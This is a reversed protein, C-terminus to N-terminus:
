EMTGIVNLTGNSYSFVHWTNGQQSPVTYTVAQANGPLYVKVTAGSTNMTGESRFDVVYYEFSAGADTITITEPGYASTDDVDLSGVNSVNQNSYSIHFSSGSSSTGQAHSDLDTPYSGWSLVIRIEGEAVEPSLVINQGVKTQGKIIEVDAYETVYGSCSVELTYKGAEGSFTYSGNNASTLEEIVTGTQSGRNRVKITARMGNGTTADQVYGNIEGDAEGEEDVTGTRSLPSLENWASESVINGESDTEVTLSCGAYEATVYWSGNEEYFSASSGLLEELRARSVAFIDGVGSFLRGVNTFRVETPKAGAVPMNGSTDLVKEDSLDYYTTYMGMDSYYLVVEGGSVDSSDASGFDRYYDTYTYAAVMDFAEKDMQAEASASEILEDTLESEAATESSILSQVLDMRETLDASTFYQMAKQVINLAATYDGTQIYASSLNMYATQKEPNIEIAELYLQIANEYDADNYYENAIRIANAYRQAKAGRYLLVGAVVALVLVLVVAAGILFRKRFKGEKPEQYNDNEWYEM